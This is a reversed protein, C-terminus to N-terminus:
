KARVWWLLLGTPDDITVLRADKNARGRKYYLAGAPFNRPSTSISVRGIGVLYSLVTVGQSPSGRSRPERRHLVEPTLTGLLVYRESTTMPALHVVM